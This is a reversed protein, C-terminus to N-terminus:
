DRSVRDGIRIRDADDSELESTNDTVRVVQARGITRMTEDIRRDGEYVAGEIRTVVVADGVAFGQAAGRNVILPNLQMVVPPFVSDLVQRFIDDAATRQVDFGASRIQTAQTSPVRRAPSIRSVGSSAIQSTQVNYLRYVYTPTITLTQSAEDATVGREELEVWLLYRLGLEQAADLASARDDSALAARLASPDTIAFRGSGTLRESLLTELNSTLDVNLSGPEPLTEGVIIAIPLPGDASAPSRTLTWAVVSAGGLAAVAAGALLWRRTPKAAQDTTQRAAPSAPANARRGTLRAVGRDVLLRWRPDNRDGTWNSLDATQITGLGLPAECSGIRAPVLCGRAAARRAEDRVNDSKVSLASWLVVVASAAALERELRHDWTEGIEIGQEEHADFFSSYGEEALAQAVLRASAIEERKYSIFVEAM